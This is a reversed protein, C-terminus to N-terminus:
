KDFWNGLVGKASKVGGIQVSESRWREQGSFLSFTTWRVEGEPTLRVTGLAPLLPFFTLMDQHGTFCPSPAPAVAGRIKVRGRLDSNANEDWSDDLSRSVGSFHVVPLDQGDEPGPAEIKTVAIKMLILRTAEGYCIARRPVNPPLDGDSTFNFDFFDTYDLFCVVRLWTGTIGYPDDLQGGEEDKSKDRELIPLPMYANPWVGAFPVDWFNKCIPFRNLGLRNLNSGLVLM